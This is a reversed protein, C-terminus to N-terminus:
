LRYHWYDPRRRQHAVAVILLVEGMLRYIITYPFGRVRSRRLEMSKNGVPQGIGPSDLLAGVQQKVAAVFDEGLGPQQTQYYAVADEFEALAAPEFQEVLLRRSESGPKLPPSLPSGDPCCEM